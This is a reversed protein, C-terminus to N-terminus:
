RWRWRCEVEAPERIEQLSMSHIREEACVIIFLRVVHRQVCMSALDANQQSAGKRIDQVLAFSMQGATSHDRTCGEAEMYLTAARM